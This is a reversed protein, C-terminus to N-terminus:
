RTYYGRNILGTNIPSRGAPGDCGVTSINPPYPFNNYNDPMIDSILQRVEHKAGRRFLLETAIIQTYFIISDSHEEM